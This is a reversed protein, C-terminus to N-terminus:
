MFNNEFGKLLLNEWQIVAHVLSLDAVSSNNNSKNVTSGTWPTEGCKHGHLLVQKEGKSEQSHHNIYVCKKLDGTELPM